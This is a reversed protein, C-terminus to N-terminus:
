ITKCPISKYLSYEFTKSNREFHIDTVEDQMYKAPYCKKNELLNLYYDNLNEADVYYKRNAKFKTPIEKVCISELKDTKFEQKFTSIGKNKNVMKSRM